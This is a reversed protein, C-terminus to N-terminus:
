FFGPPVPDIMRGFAASRDALQQVKDGAAPREFLGTDEKLFQAGGFNDRKFAIQANHFDTDAGRRQQTQEAGDGAHQGGEARQGGPRPAVFGHAHDGAADGLREDGGFGPQDDRQGAEKKLILEGARVVFVFGKQRM